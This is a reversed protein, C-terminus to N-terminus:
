PYYQRFYERVYEQGEEIARCPEEYKKESEVEVYIKTGDSLVCICVEAPYRM